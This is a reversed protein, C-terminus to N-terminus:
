LQYYWPGILSYGLWLILVLPIGTKLFDKFSYQGPGMVLLNTQYGVPTAFSCNAAFIICVVFAERPAGIADAIGIAIPTFLVATANNSLINTLVATILFLVSLIVAPPFGQMAGAASMALFEAGGTRELATAAALSAGVLMFIQGDFARASQRINLCGATIMAFAGALSAVVIPLLGTAATFIVAAFIAIARPAFARMPVEATSWQLLILDHSARLREIDEPMGGILLTDGQVLRIDRMLTRPMRARRQLGIVMTGYTARIRSAEITRGAFRSGPAVIAEALTFDREVETIEDSGRAEDREKEPMVPLSAAGVALARTLAGRTAAVIVTDGQSLVVDEFPPLIPKGDRLVSRVTMDKLAPFLGAVSKAGLLVHDATIEIQAVFHRGSIRNEISEQKEDGGLLKPMIFIVYLGGLAALLVGPVTFDFFGIDLGSKRAVGAVLLNTSSGIMTTMGGLIGIFSLPMLVKSAAFGRQASIAAVIPIFMVVVPTNNLFASTVAALVLLIVITRRGDAGGLRSIWRTPAELADTNFLAQGVLLLALVTALAPNAFGSILDAPSIPDDGPMPVISFLLLLAVVTTLSIYEVSWRELAFAVITCLIIAFTIWMHLNEILQASGRNHLILNACSAAFILYTLAQDPLSEFDTNM